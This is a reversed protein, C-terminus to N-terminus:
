QRFSLPFSVAAVEAVPPVSFVSKDSKLRSDGIRRRNATVFVPLTVPGSVLNLSSYAGRIVVQSMAVTQVSTSEDSSPQSINSEVKKVLPLSVVLKVTPFPPTLLEGPVKM